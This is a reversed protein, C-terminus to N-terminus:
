KPLFANGIRRIMFYLATAVLIIFLIKILYSFGPAGEEGRKYIKKKIM